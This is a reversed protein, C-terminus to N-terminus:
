TLGETLPYVPVIRKAHISDDGGPDVIEIEPHDITRPKLDRVRGSVLLRQAKQFTKLIHPINWWRCHLRAPGDAIVVLSLSKTGRGFWKVGLEVVEGETTIPGISDIQAIPLFARRDEYRRPAHQLLALLTTIGLKELLRAREPGIGAIRTVPTSVDLPASSQV